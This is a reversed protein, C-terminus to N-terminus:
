GPDLSWEETSKPVRRYGPWWTLTPLDLQGKQLKSCDPQHNKKRNKVRQFVRFWFIWEPRLWDDWCQITKTWDFYKFGSTERKMLSGGSIMWKVLSKGHFFDHSCIKPYGWSRHNKTWGSPAKRMGDTALLDGSFVSSAPGPSRKTQFFHRSIEPSSLMIFWDNKVSGIIEIPHFNGHFNGNVAQGCGSAQSHAMFEQNFSTQCPPCLVVTGTKSLLNSFRVIQCILTDSFRTYLEYIYIGLIGKM